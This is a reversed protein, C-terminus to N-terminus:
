QLSVKDANDEKSKQEMKKITERYYGSEKKM